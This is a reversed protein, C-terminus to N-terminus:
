QKQTEDTTKTIETDKAKSVHVPKEVYNDPKYGDKAAEEIRKELLAKEEPTASELMKKIQESSFNQIMLRFFEFNTTEAALMNFVTNTKTATNNSSTGTTDSEVDRELGHTDFLGGGIISEKTKGEIAM